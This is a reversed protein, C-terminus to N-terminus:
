KGELAFIVSRSTKQFIQNGSIAAPCCTNHMAGGGLTGLNRRGLEQRVNQDVLYRDKGTSINYINGFPPNGPWGPDRVVFVEQGGISFGWSQDIVSFGGDWTSTRGFSEGEKPQWHWSTPNKKLPAFRDTILPELRGSELDLRGFFCWGSATLRINAYTTYAFGDPSVAPPPGICSGGNVTIIPTVYKENGTKADLVMLTKHHPHSALWAVLEPFTEHDKLVPDNKHAENYPDMIAEQIQQQTQHCVYALQTTLIVRDAAAVLWYERMAAGPIKPSQWRLEGSRGDFAHVHMDGAAVYLMGDAYAPTCMVLGGIPTQWLAKGSQPDVAYVKGDRGAVFIKSDAVVPSAWIGEGTEFRWASKGTEIDVAHCYRDMSCVYVREDDCAPTGLIPGDTRYKWVTEGSQHDLAYLHGHCTGTFVKEQAVVVQAATALPEGLDRSWLLKFPATPQDKTFGTHAADCQLQPWDAASTLSVQTFSLSFLCIIITFRIISRSM